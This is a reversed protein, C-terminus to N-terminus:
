RYICVIEFDHLMKKTETELDPITEITFAIISLLILVQIAYDFYIGAKTERSDVIKNIKDKM